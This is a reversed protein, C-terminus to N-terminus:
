GGPRDALHWSLWAFRGFVRLVAGSKSSLQIETATGHTANKTKRRGGLLPQSHYSGLRHRWFLHSVQPLACAVMCATARMQIRDHNDGPPQTLYKMMGIPFLSQCYTRLVHNGSLVCFIRIHKWWISDFELRNIIFSNNRIM